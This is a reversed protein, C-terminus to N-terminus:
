VTSGLLFVSCPAVTGRATEIDVVSAEQSEKAQFTRRGSVWM